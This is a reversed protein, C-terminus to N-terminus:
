HFIPLNLPLTLDIEYFAREALKQRTIKRTHRQLHRSVARNAVDESGVRIGESWGAMSTFSCYKPSLTKAVTDWGVFHWAMSSVCSWLETSRKRRFRPFNNSSCGRWTREIPQYEFYENKIVKDFCSRPVSTVSQLKITLVILELQMENGRKSVYLCTHIPKDNRRKQLFLQCTPKCSHHGCYIRDVFWLDLRGQSDKFTQWHGSKGSFLPAM